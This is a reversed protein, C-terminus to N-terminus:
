DRCLPRAGRMDAYGAGKSGRPDAGFYREDTHPDAAPQYRVDCSLRIREDISNNDLSGHLTFGSFVVVDGAQFDSSLLRVSRQIALDIPHLSNQADYAAAQVAENSRDSQFDIARIPDLLDDFRFSNEVVVLPGDCLPIDGMPIWVTHIRLSDGAFFPYDYHLPTVGGPAMPRLYMLDHARANEGLVTTVLGHTARGHTVARLGAGHNVSKWFAGHDDAPDPRRSEWTVRGEIAPEAIEGVDSLRGLVEARASLVRDRDLGQRFVIYGHQALFQQVDAPSDVQGEFEVLPGFRDEPIERQQIHPM